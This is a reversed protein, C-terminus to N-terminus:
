RSDSPEMWSMIKRAPRRRHDRGPDRRSPADVSRGSGWLRRGEPQRLDRLYDAVTDKGPHTGAPAPFPLGPLADHEAPTFLRLSKWRTRWTHGPEAAAELVLFRLGRERLHWAAALGAQGGGVVVVDFPEVPATM